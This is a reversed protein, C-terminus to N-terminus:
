NSFLFLKKDSARLLSNKFQMSSFTVIEFSISNHLIDSMLCLGDSSPKTQERSSMKLDIIANSMPSRMTNEDNKWTKRTSKKQNTTQFTHQKRPFLHQLEISRVRSTQNLHILLISNINVPKFINQGTEDNQGSGDNFNARLFALIYKHM